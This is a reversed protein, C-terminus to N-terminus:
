GINAARLEAIRRSITADLQRTPTTVRMGGIVSPDVTEQIHLEQANTLEAIKKKTADTLARASIVEAVVVGKSELLEYVSRIILEIERTRREEVLLGAIQQVLVQMDKGATIYDAAYTAIKQRSLRVAM